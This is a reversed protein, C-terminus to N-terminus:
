AEALKPEGGGAGAGGLHARVAHSEEVAIEGGDADAVAEDGEVGFPPSM